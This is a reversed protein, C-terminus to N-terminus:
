GGSALWDRDPQEGRPDPVEAEQPAVLEVLDTPDVHVEAELEEIPVHYPSRSSM